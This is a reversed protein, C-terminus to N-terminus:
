IPSWGQYNASSFKFYSLAKCDVGGACVVKVKRKVDM